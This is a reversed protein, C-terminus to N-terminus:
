DKKTENTIHIDQQPYPISIGEQDFIIKVEETIESKVSLYDQSNVWVKVNFNVSSDALEGVAVSNLENKLVKSNDKIIKLLIDKAKKIDDSYGIGFIMDIRRKSFANINVIVKSTIASNPVIIKKNDPTVFISNFIGVEKVTGSIGAAQIFDGVKFPKFFIIMVGSAFNSLSDKLALGIALGAAGLIAVFSMTEIGLEELVALIVVIMLIYYIINHMFKIFTVDAKNSRGVIISFLNAIKKSVWKGIVFICIALIISGFYQVVYQSIMGFVYDYKELFKEM